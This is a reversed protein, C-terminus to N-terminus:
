GPKVYENILEYWGSGIVKLPIIGWKERTATHLRRGEWADPNRQWENLVREAEEYSPAEVEYISLYQSVPTSGLHGGALRYAGGRIFNPCRATDEIHQGVFWEDFAEQADPSPPEVLGILVFRPM